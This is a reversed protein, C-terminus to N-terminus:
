GARRVVAEGMGAGPGSESRYTTWEDTVAAPAPRVTIYLLEGCLGCLLRDDRAVLRGEFVRQMEESPHRCSM